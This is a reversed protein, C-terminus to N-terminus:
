GFTAKTVKGDDIEFSVRDPNYDLTGAFLEDDERSIRWPRGDDEAKAIAARKTLGVYDAEKGPGPDAANANDNNGSSASNGSDSGCGAMMLGGAVVLAGCAWTRAQRRTM